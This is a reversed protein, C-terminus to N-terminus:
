HKEREVLWRGAATLGDADISSYLRVIATVPLFTPWRQRAAGEQPDNLRAFVVRHADEVHLFAIRHLPRSM